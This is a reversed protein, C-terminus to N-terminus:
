NWIIKAKDDFIIGLYTSVFDYERNYTEQHCDPCLTIGNDINLIFEPYDRQPLIHHVHKVGIKTGCQQCTNNDRKIVTSRWIEYLEIPVTHVYKSVWDRIPEGNAFQQSIKIWRKTQHYHSMIISMLESHKEILDSDSWTLKQADRQMEKYDINSRSDGITNVLKQVSISNHMPNDNIMRISLEDKRSEDESWIKLLAERIQDSREETVHGDKLMSSHGPIYDPIGVNPEHHYKLIKITNGCGCKCFHKNTHYIIWQDITMGDDYKRMSRDIPKKCVIMADPYKKVYEVFTINHKNLHSQTIQKFHGDCICCVIYDRGKIKRVM